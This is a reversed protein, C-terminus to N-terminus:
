FMTLWITAERRAWTHGHHSGPFRPPATGQREMLLTPGRHMAPSPTPPSTPNRGVMGRTTLLIMQCIGKGPNSHIHLPSAQPQEPASPAMRRQEMSVLATLTWTDASRDPSGPLGCWDKNEGGQRFNYCFPLFIAETCPVPGIVAILNFLFFINKGPENNDRVIAKITDKEKM